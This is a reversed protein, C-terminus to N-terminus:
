SLGLHGLEVQAPCLSDRNSPNPNFFFPIEKHIAEDIRKRESPSLCSYQIFFDETCSKIIYSCLFAISNYIRTVNGM